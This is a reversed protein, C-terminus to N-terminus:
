LLSTEIATVKLACLVLESFFVMQMRKVPRENPDLGTRHNASFDRLKQWDSKLFRLRLVVFISARIFFGFNTRLPAM